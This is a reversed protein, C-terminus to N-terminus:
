AAPAPGDTIPGEASGLDEARTYGDSAVGAAEERNDLGQEGMDPRAEFDSRRWVLRVVAGHAPPFRNGITINAGSRELLTSAIFFGLGLGAHDEDSNRDLTRALPRTTLYPEGLTEIVHQAFGPGDDAIVISVDNEDWEASVRVTTEAFDAANEVINSLGHLVGPSRWSVPEKRAAADLGDAPGVNLEIEADFVRYPEVAEEILHSLPLHGHLPDGSNGISSLSNLIERCRLTQSKLLAIDEANPGNAPMARELETAIVAITALPTGLEHAAAAALGDLAHLQKERALVHETAALADSMTRAESALRRTYLGIFAMGCVVSAWLGLSYAHPIDFQENQWWPLPLHVFLLATALVLALGGLLLTYRAPLTTASVTVPAIMLYAFPNELGGTLYLLSALQLLDYTLLFAAFGDPLRYRTPFRMMLWANLLASCGILALCAAFPLSIGLYLFTTVVALFQGVVAIWRLGIITQLRPRSLTGNDTLATIFQM